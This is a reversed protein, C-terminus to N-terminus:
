KLSYRIPVTAHYVSQGLSKPLAPMPNARKLIELAAKDLGDVGSSQVVASELLNGGRDLSFSVTVQGQIGRRKLSRPYRKHQLLWAM